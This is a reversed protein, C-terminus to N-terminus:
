TVTYLWARRTCRGDPRKRPPPPNVILFFVDGLKITPVPIVLGSEYALVVLSSTRDPFRAQVLNRSLTGVEHHSPQHLASAIESNSLVARDSPPDPEMRM